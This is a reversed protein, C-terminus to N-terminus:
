QWLPGPDIDDVNHAGFVKSLASKFAPTPAAIPRPPEPANALQKHCLNPCGLAEPAQPFTTDPHIIRKGVDVLKNPCNLSHRFTGFM